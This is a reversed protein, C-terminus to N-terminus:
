MKNKNPSGSKRYIRRFKAHIESLNRSRVCSLCIVSVAVSLGLCFTRVSYAHSSLLSVSLVFLRLASVCRYNSKATSIIWVGNVLPLLQDNNNRGTLTAFYQLSYMQKYTQRSAYSSFWVALNKHMSRRPRSESRRQYRQSINHVEPKVSPTLTVRNLM